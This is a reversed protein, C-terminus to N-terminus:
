MYCQWAHIAAATKKKSPKEKQKECKEKEKENSYISDSSILWGAQRGKRGGEASSVLSISSSIIVIDRRSTAMGNHVNPARRAKRRDGSVSLAM